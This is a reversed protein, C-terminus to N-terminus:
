QAIELVVDAAQESASKKLTDYITALRNSVENRLTADDLFRAVATTLNEPTAEHQLLEPVVPRELLNNPM